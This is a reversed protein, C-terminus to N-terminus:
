APLLLVAAAYRCRRGPWDPLLLCQALGCGHADFVDAWDGRWDRRGACEVWVHDGDSPFAPWHARARGHCVPLRGADLVGRGPAGHRCHCHARQAGALWYHGGGAWLRLRRCHGLPAWLSGFFPRRPLVHLGFVRHLCIGDLRLQRQPWHRRQDHDVLRRHLCILWLRGCPLYRRGPLIPLIASTLVYNQSAYSHYKLRFIILFYRVFYTGVFLPSRYYGKPVDEIRIMNGNPDAEVVDKTLDGTDIPSDTEAHQIQAMEKDGAM